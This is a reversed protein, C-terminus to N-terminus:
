TGRYRPCTLTIISSEVNVAVDEWGAKYYLRKLAKVTAENPTRLNPLRAFCVAVQQGQKPIMTKLECDILRELASLLVEQLAEKKLLEKPGIAM